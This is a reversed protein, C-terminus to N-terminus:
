LSVSMAHFGSDVYIVEGSIARSLDSCLFLTTDAVDEATIPRRLPSHEATAKVMTDMDGISRAARSPFAGPSVLNVRVGKEGLYWALNQSDSELSAKASAMGGGYGPTVRNAALYTLGVVSSGERMMPLAARSMAILSYSSISHALLYAARSTELHSNQIEPSFAVSHIVIDMPAGGSLEAYKAFAGEISVDEERYGKVTKRDEPIDAATDFEVDCGILGKPALEGEAGYPLKRSEAYKDRELFRKVIGLVRPHSALYVNAGAAQLAKAIAWGFGGNDAVGTVFANKNTLDLKFMTAAIQWPHVAQAVDCFPLLAGRRRRRMM